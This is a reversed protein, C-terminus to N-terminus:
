KSPSLPNLKPLRNLFDLGISRLDKEKEPTKAQKAIERPRPSHLVVRLDDFLVEGLGSLALNVFFQGDQSVERILEFRQWDGPQYWRLAGASGLVNGYIMAGNHSASIPSLVKVWGSVHVVQGAVVSVAPTTVAVPPTSIIQPPDTGTEPLASLRLSFDGERAKSYLSAEARVGALGSQRNKWGDEIMFQIDEFNGSDIENEAVKPQSKGIHAMMKWHDPLTQFCVTHSSSLPSSFRGAAAEWYDRQIARLVSMSSLSLKRAQHFSRRVYMKEAHEIMSAAYALRQPASRHGVGQNRLQLDVEKVRQFKAQALDISVRSSRKRMSNKKQQLQDILARDSTVVIAATTNFEPLTIKLGGAVRQKELSHIDTTSVQWASASENVGPVVISVSRAAMPGPVLQANKGYWIPLLLTGGSGHFVAAQLEEKRNQNKRTSSRLKNLLSERKAASQSFLRFPQTQKAASQYNQDIAQFKVPEDRQGDILWPELLELELNLQTIVLRREADGPQKSFLSRSSWFGVGQYGAALAAYLQLRIQEPEIVVPAQGAAERHRKIASSPETQIWTWLFSGPRAQKREEELWDRYHSFSFSSNLVHRSVGVMSLHRSILREGGIVDAMLPRRFHRDASRIQDAWNLLKKHQSVPIRSGLNWFLVPSTADTFPIPSADRSTLFQGTSSLVKPPTAMAWLDNRRLDRLLREDKYEPLWLVNFGMSRMAALDEQHYPVFRPLFPRGEVVLRDLRFKVVPEAQKNEVLRVANLASKEVPVIPGYELDDVSVEVVGPDFQSALYIRDVYMDRTDIKLVQYRSLRSQALVLKQQISKLLNATTLQQWRGAQTYVDGTVVEQFIGETQPDHQHPCVFRVALVLGNRNSNVWLKIKLDAIVRCPLIEHELKVVASQNASQLTMQEAFEGSHVARRTRSHSLIKTEREDHRVTWTPKPSEFGLKKEASLACSSRGPVEVLAVLMFFVAMSNRVFKLAQRGSGDKTGIESPCVSQAVTGVQSHRFM